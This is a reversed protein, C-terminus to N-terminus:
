QAFITFIAIQGFNDNRLRNKKWLMLNDYFFAKVNAKNYVYSYM